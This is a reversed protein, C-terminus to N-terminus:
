ADQEGKKLEVQSLFVKLHDSTYERAPRGLVKNASPFCTYLVARSGSQFVGGKSPRAAPDLNEDLMRLGCYALEGFACLNRPNLTGLENALHAKACARLLPEGIEVREHRRAERGFGPFKAVSWCKVAHVFYFGVDLFEELFEHDPRPSRVRELTRLIRHLEERLNDPAGTSWFGGFPKPPNWGVFLLGVARPKPPYAYLQPPRVVGGRVPLGLRDCVYRSAPSKV